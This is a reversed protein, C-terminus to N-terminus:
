GRSGVLVATVATVITTTATAIVTNSTSETSTVSALKATVNILAYDHPVEGQETRLFDVADEAFLVSSCWYINTMGPLVTVVVAQM